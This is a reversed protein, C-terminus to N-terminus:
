LKIILFEYIGDSYFLIIDDADIDTEYNEYEFDEFLGAAVGEGSLISLIKGGTIKFPQTGGAIGYVFKKNKKDIYGYSTAVFLSHWM